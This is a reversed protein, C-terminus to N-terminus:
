QIESAPIENILEKKLVYHHSISNESLHITYVQVLEWGDEGMYNLADVITNFKLKKGNDGTLKKTKFWPIKEGFDAEITSNRGFNGTFTLECYGFKKLTTQPDTTQSLASFFSICVFVVSLIIKKM